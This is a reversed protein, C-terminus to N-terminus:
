RAGRDKKRIEQQRYNERQELSTKLRERISKGVKKSNGEGYCDKWESMDKQCAAYVEQFKHCIRYFERM